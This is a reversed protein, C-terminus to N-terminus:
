PPWRLLFTATTPTIFSHVLVRWRLNLVLHRHGLTGRRDAEAPIFEDLTDGAGVFVAEQGRGGRRPRTWEGRIVRVNENQRKSGVKVQSEDTRELM